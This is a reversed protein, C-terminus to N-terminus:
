YAQSLLYGRSGSPQSEKRALRLYPDENGHLLCWQAPCRGIYKCSAIQSYVLDIYIEQLVTFGDFFGLCCDRFKGFEPEFRLLDSDLVFKSVAKSALVPSYVGFAAAHAIALVALLLSLFKAMTTNTTNALTTCSSKIASPRLNATICALLLKLQNQTRYSHTCHDEKKQFAEYVHTV